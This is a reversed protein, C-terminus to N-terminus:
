HPAHDGKEVFVFKHQLLFSIVAVPLPLLLGAVYLSMGWSSLLRLMGINIFYTLTYVGLFRYLVRNSRSSFVYRGTTKFNFLVGVVTALLVALTYHLRLFIFLSFLAYSFATNVVGVVLFRSFRKYM